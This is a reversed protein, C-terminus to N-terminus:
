LPDLAFCRKGWFEFYILSLVKQIIEFQATCFLSNVKLPMQVEVDKVVTPSMYMDWAVIIWLDYTDRLRSALIELEYFAIGKAESVVDRQDGTWLGTKLYVLHDWLILLTM